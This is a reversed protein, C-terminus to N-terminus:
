RWAALSRSLLAYRRIPRANRDSIRRSTNTDHMLAHIARRFGMDAARRHVVDALIGGLGLRSARPDVAVTKVIVTDVPEGRRAQAVDPLAFIFGLLMGNREALLVLEPQVFPLATSYQALFEAEGIPTYLFNRSFARISLAFIRRLEDDAHAPDLQRITVGANELRARVDAARGYRLALDDNVASTYMALSSFGAMSWHRPWEDNHDPELFFAPEAGRDVIFRYRRWTTGDM